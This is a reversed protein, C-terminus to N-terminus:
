KKFNHFIEIWGFPKPRLSERFLEYQPYYKALNGVLIIPKSPRLSKNLGLLIVIKEDTVKLLRKVEDINIGEESQKLNKFNLYNEQLLREKILPYQNLLWGSSSLKKNNEKIKEQLQQIEM